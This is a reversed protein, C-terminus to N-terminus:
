LEEWMGDNRGKLLRVMEGLRNVEEGTGMGKGRKGVETQVNRWMEGLVGDLVEKRSKKHEKRPPNQWDVSEGFFQSLKGTRRRRASHSNPDVDLDLDLFTDLSTPSPSSDLPRNSKPTVSIADLVNGLRTRDTDALWLLGELSAHYAQLPDPSPITSSTSSHPSTTPTRKPTIFMERPPTDGFLQELKHARRRAVSKEKESLKGGGLDMFSDDFGVKGRKEEDKHRDKDTRGMQRIKNWASSSISGALSPTREDTILFSEEPSIARQAQSPPTGSRDGMSDQSPRTLLDAPIPVGLLRHLKALQVRRVKRLDEEQGPSGEERLFWPKRGSDPSNPADRASGGFDPLQSRQRTEAVRVERSVYVRLDKDSERDGDENRRLAAMARQALRSSQKRMLSGSPVEVRQPVCDDRQWEQTRSPPTRPWADDVHQTVITSVGTSPEIVLREVQREDLPTGLMQELKKARRLLVARQDPPLDNTARLTSDPRNLPPQSHKPVPPLDKTPLLRAVTHTSESLSPHLSPLSDVSASRHPTILLEPGVGRRRSSIPTVPPSPHLKHKVAPLPTSPSPRHGRLPPPLGTGAGKMEVASELARKEFQMTVRATEAGEGLIQDLKSMRGRASRASTTRKVGNGMYALESDSGVSNERTEEEVGGGRLPTGSSPPTKDKKPTTVPSSKQFKPSTPSQLRPVIRNPNMASSKLLHAQIAEETEPKKHKQHKQTPSPYYGLSPSTYEKNGTMPGSYGTSTSASSMSLPRRRRWSGSKIEGDEPVNDLERAVEDSTVSDIASWRRSMGFTDSSERKTTKSRPASEESITTMGVGRSQQIQQTLPLSSTSQIASGAFDSISSAAQSFRFFSTDPHVPPVSPVNSIRTYNTPTESPPVYNSGWISSDMSLRLFSDSPQTQSPPQDPISRIEPMSGVDLEEQDGEFGSHSSPSISSTAKTIPPCASRDRARPSSSETTMAVGLPVDMRAETSTGTRRSHNRVLSSSMDDPERQRSRPTIDLDLIRILDAGSRGAVYATRISTEPTPSVELSSCATPSASLPTVLARRTPTDFPDVFPSILNLRLSPRPPTKPHSLHPPSISTSM